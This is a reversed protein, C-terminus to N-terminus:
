SDHGRPPGKELRAERGKQGNAKEVGDQRGFRDRWRYTGDEGSPQAVKVTAARVQASAGEGRNDPLARDGAEELPYRELIQQAQDVELLHHLPDAQGVIAGGCAIRDERREL